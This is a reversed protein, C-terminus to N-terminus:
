KETLKIWGGSKKKKKKIGKFECYGNTSSQSWRISEQFYLCHVFSRWSPYKIRLTLASFKPAQGYTLAVTRTHSGPVLYIDM